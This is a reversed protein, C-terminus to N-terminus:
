FRARVPQSTGQANTLTVSVETLTVNTLTFPQTFTFQGGYAASRSDAFWQRAASETQVTVTNSDLRSGAATTFQFTASGVERTTSFGSIVVDFGGARQNVRVSSVVPATRDIRITRSAGPTPTVDLDGAALLVNLDVVGAVSGTQMALEPVTYVAQTSGAPIRFEAQRQGTVFRIAPDDVNLGPDPSFRMSVSGQLDVPYPAEISISIRPQQAPQVIEPLDGFSL